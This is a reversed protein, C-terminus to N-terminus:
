YEVWELQICKDFGGRTQRRLEQVQRVQAMTLQHATLITDFVELVDALETLLEDDLATQVEEAEEVLKALLAVRFDPESLTTTRCQRGEEAIIAPIRDRVLKPYSM